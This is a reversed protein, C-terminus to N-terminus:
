VKKLKRAGIKDLIIGCTYPDDCTFGLAGNEFAKKYDEENVNWAFYVCPKIDMIKFDDFHIKEVVPSATKGDNNAWWRRCDVSKDMGSRAFLCVEDMYPYPDVIDTGKMCSKPFFGHLVVHDTFKNRIWHMLCASFTIVTLRDPGWVGYEKCLQLTKNCSVYAFDGIEEPYDKLELLLKVDPRDKLLELLETLEPVREGKFQEGFKIGADAEKVQALSRDFIHGEKDTTRQLTADHCIVVHYDNTMHVDIEIADIDLKLAEKFAIMTNEPFKQRYGRHATLTVKTDM